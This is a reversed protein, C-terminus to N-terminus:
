CSDRWLMSAVCFQADCISNRAALSVECKPSCMNEEQTPGPRVCQWATSAYSPKSWLPCEARLWHAPLSLHNHTLVPSRTHTNSHTLTHYFTYICFGSIRQHNTECTLNKGREKESGFGFTYCLKYCECPTRIWISIRMSYELMHLSKNGHSISRQSILNWRIGDSACM